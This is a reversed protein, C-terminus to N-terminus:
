SEMETVEGYLNYIHVRAARFSDLSVLSGHKTHGQIWPIFEQYSFM